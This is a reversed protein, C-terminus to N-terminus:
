WVAASGPLADVIGVSCNVGAIGHRVALLDVVIVLPAKVGRIVTRFHIDLEVWLRPPDSSDGTSSQISSDAFLARRQQPNLNIVRFFGNRRFQALGCM